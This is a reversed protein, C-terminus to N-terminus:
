DMLPYSNAYIHYPAENNFYVQGKIFFQIYKKSKFLFYAGSDFSIAKEYDISAKDLVYFSM